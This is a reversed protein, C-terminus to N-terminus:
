FKIRIGDLTLSKLKDFKNLGYFNSTNLKINFQDESKLDLKELAFSSKLNSLVKNGANKAVKIDLEELHTLHKLADINEVKSTSLNKYTLDLVLKKLKICNKLFDINQSNPCNIELEELNTLYEFVFLDKAEAEYGDASIYELQPFNKLWMSVIGEIRMKVVSSNKLVDEPKSYDLDFSSLDINLEQLSTFNEIPPLRAFGREGWYRVEHSPTFFTTTKLKCINKKKLSEHVEAEDPCYYILLYLAYNLYPQAPGSGKFFKNYIISQSDAENILKCNALLTEYFEIINISRLLEIGMDIKDFDRATLLSKIKTFTKKDDSKLKNKSIIKKDPTEEEDLITLNDSNLPKVEIKQTIGINNIKISILNKPLKIENINEIKSNFDYSGCSSINLSSLENLKM